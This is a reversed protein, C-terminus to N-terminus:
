LKINLNIKISAKIVKRCIPALVREINFFANHMKTSYKKRRLTEINKLLDRIKKAVLYKLACPRDECLVEYENRITERNDYGCHM